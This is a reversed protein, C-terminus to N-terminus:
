LWLKGPFHFHAEHAESDCKHNTYLGINEPNIDHAPVATSYDPFFEPNTNFDESLLSFGGRIGSQHLCDVIRRRYENDALSSRAAGSSYVLSFADPQQIIKVTVNNADLCRTFNNWENSSVKGRSAITAQLISFWHTSM